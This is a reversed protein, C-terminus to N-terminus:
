CAGQKNFVVQVTKLLLQLDYRISWKEQYVLDMKVVEEFDTVNSRGNVQWEGTIGPKVNLREWHHQKYGMVEDVTPPRTGVLSMDGMLVNWFQPFEDLSTKRLFKGVRTVRPDNRNKFIGGKAENNVLHKLVDANTVMSRFKWIRFPKGQLGCRVQCYFLPGPNDIQTAIAIPIVLITTIALGVLAGVIDILRKLTSFASPHISHPLRVTHLYNPNSNTIQNTPNTSASIQKLHELLGPHSRPPLESTTIV